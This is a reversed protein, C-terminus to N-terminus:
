IDKVGQSTLVIFCSHPAYRIGNIEKTACSHYHYTMLVMCNKEVKHSHFVGWSMGDLLGAMLTVRFADTELRTYTGAILGKGTNKNQVVIGAKLIAVAYAEEIPMTSIYMKNRDKAFCLWFKGRPYQKEDSLATEVIEKTEIKAGDIEITPTYTTIVTTVTEVRTRTFVRKVWRTFWGWFSRVAQVVTEVVRKTSQLIQQHVTPPTVVITVALAMAVVAGVSAVTMSCNDISSNDICESLYYREGELELYGEEREGDYLPTASKTINELIEGGQITQIEVYFENSELNYKTKIRREATEDGSIAIVDIASIDVGLIGEFLISNDDSDIKYDDFKEIFENICDEYTSQTAIVNRVNASLEEQSNEDSGKNITGCSFVLICSLIVSIIGRFIKSRRMSVGVM